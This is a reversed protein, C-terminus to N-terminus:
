ACVELIRDIVRNTIGADKLNQAVELMSRVNDEANFDYRWQEPAVLCTFGVTGKYEDKVIPWTGLENYITEEEDGAPEDEKGDDAPEDNGAAPTEDVVDEAPAKCGALAFSLVVALALLILMLKKM